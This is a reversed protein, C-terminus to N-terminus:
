MNVFNVFKKITEQRSHKSVHTYINLTTSVDKHGLQTQVQKVTAGSEFALSAFTHRFGHITIRKLDYKRIIRNLKNQAFSVSLLENNLNTFVLQEPSAMTNYGLRLMQRRQTVRWQKLMAMTKDDMDLVRTSNVTKPKGILMKNNLGRTVTKNISITSKSLNVDSWNLALMEGRRMGTFALLRFILELKPQRDGYEANFSQFFKALQERDWFNNFHEKKKRSPIAKPRVVKDMPNSVILEMRYAYKFVQNCAIFMKRYDPFKKAWKNVIKQCYLMDIKAIDLNGFVPLVHLRMIGLTKNLTSEAVTEQYTELWISFVQKFTKAQKVPSFGKEQIHVQLQQVALKAEKQTNFGRRTTRKQKGTVEDVGLYVNFMWATSGDKKKYQKFKAM